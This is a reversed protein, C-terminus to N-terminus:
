KELLAVLTMSFKILHIHHNWFRGVVSSTKIKPQRQRPFMPFWLASPCTALYCVTRKLANYLNTRTLDSSQCSIQSQPPWLPLRRSDDMTEEHLQSLKDDQPLQSKENDLSSKDANSPNNGEV